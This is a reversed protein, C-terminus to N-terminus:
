CSAACRGVRTLTGADPDKGLKGDHLGTAYWCATAKVAPALAPRFAIHGATCHGAAGLQGSAVLGPETPHGIWGAETAWDDYPAEPLKNHTEKTM